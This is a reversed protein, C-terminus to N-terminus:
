QPMKVTWIKAHLKLRVYFKFGSIGWKHQMEMIPAPDDVPAYGQAAISNTWAQVQANLEDKARRFARTLSSSKKSVSFNQEFVTLEAGSPARVFMSNFFNNLEQQYQNVETNYTNLDDPTPAEEALAPTGILMVLMAMALYVIKREFM